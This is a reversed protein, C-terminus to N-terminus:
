TTLPPKPARTDLLARDRDALAGELQHVKTELTRLRSRLRWRQIWLPLGAALLGVVLAALMVAAISTEPLSWGLFRVAVTGANQFAFIVVGAALLAVVIYGLAM